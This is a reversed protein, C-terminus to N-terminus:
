IAQKPLDVKVCLDLLARRYGKLEDLTINRMNFITLFSAIEVDSYKEESIEVMIQYAEEESLTYNEFLLNLLKKM